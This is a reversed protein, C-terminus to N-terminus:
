AILVVPASRKDDQQSRNERRAEAALRNALMKMDYPKPIFNKALGMKRVADRSAVHGSTVFTKVYPHWHRLWQAFELGDRGEPFHIDTLALDVPVGLTLLSVAEEADLAEVVHMGARSLLMGMTTLILPEDEVLLITPKSEEM